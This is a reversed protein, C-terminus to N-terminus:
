IIFFIYIVKRLLLLISCTKRQFYILLRVCSVTKVLHCVRLLDRRPMYWLSLTPHSLALRSCLYIKSKNKESPKHSLMFASTIGYEVPNQSDINNGTESM